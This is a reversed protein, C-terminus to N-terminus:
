LREKRGDRNERTEKNGCEDEKRIRGLSRRCEELGGKKELHRRRCHIMEMM